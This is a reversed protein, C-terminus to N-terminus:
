AIKMTTLLRSRTSEGSLEKARRITIAPANRGTTANKESTRGDSSAREGAVQPATSYRAMGHVTAASM